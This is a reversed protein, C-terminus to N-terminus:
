WPRGGTVVSQMFLVRQRRWSQGGTGSTNVLAGLQGAAFLTATFSHAAEDCCSTARHEMTKACQKQDQECEGAQHGHASDMGIGVLGHQGVVEGPVFVRVPVRRLHGIQGDGRIPSVVVPSDRPM